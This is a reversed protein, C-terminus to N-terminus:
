ALRGRLWRAARELAGPRRPGFRRGGREVEVVRGVLASVPVPPDDTRCGDGRTIALAREVRVLRHAVLVGGRRAVVIEGIAGGGPVVRLRDGDRLAPAM